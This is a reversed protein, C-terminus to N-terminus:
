TGVVYGLVGNTRMEDELFLRFEHYSRALITQGIEQYPLRNIGFQVKGFDVPRIESSHIQEPGDAVILFSLSPV